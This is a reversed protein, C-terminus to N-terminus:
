RNNMAMRLIDNIKSQYGKPTDQKLWSLIDLDIRFTIPKKKIKLNPFYGREFDKETLEPMDITNIESDPIANAECKAIYNELETM